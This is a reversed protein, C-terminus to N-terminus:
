SDKYLAGQTPMPFLLLHLSIVTVTRNIFRIFDMIITSHYTGGISCGLPCDLGYIVAQYNL